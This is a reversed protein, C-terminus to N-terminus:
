INKRKKEKAYNTCCFHVFSGSIGEAPVMELLGGGFM